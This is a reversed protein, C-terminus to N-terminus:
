KLRLYLRYNDSEISPKTLPILYKENGQLWLQHDSETSPQSVGQKDYWFVQYTLQVPTHHKNKVWAQTPSVHADVLPDADAEINLIPQHTHLLNVPQRSGCSVLFCSSIFLAILKKM